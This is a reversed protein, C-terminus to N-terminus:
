QAEPTIIVKRLFLSDRNEEYPLINLNCSSICERRTDSLTIFYPRNYNFIMWARWQKRERKKM